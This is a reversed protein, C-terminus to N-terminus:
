SLQSGLCIGLSSRLSDNQKHNANDLIFLKLIQLSDDWQYKCNNATLRM